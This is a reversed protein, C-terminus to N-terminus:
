NGLRQFERVMTKVATPDLPESWLGNRKLSSGVILADAFPVYQELNKSTAGSGVLVPIEVGESVARVESPDAPAGTERCRRELQRLRDDAM